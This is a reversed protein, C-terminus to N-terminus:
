ALLIITIGGLLMNYIVIKLMIVVHITNHSGFNTINKGNNITKQDIGRQKSKIQGFKWEDNNLTKAMNKTIQISLLNGDGNRCFIYM